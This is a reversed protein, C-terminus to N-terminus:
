TGRQEREAARRCHGVKHAHADDEEHEDARGEVGDVGEDALGRLQAAMHMCMYVYMYMYMYMCTCMNM